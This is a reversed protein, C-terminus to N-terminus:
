PAWFQEGVMFIPEMFGEHLVFNGALWSFLSWLSKMSWLNVVAQRM